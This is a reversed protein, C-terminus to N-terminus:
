SSAPVPRHWLRMGACRSISVTRPRRASASPFTNLSRYRVAQRPGVSALKRRREAREPRRYAPTSCREDISDPNFATTGAAIRATNPGLDKELVTGQHNVLFTMVGSNGYEAPYAILAFGGIM